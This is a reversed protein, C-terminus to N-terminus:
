KESTSKPPEEDKAEPAPTAETRNPMQGRKLNKIYAVVYQLEEDSMQEPGFQPMIPKYGAHLKARPYRISERIYNEDAEVSTGDQLPVLKKYLDEM